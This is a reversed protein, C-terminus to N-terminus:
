NMQIEVDLAVHPLFDLIGQQVEQVRRLPAISQPFAFFGRDFDYGFEALIEDTPINLDFYSRFTYPRNPELLPM